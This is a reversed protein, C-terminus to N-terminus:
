HFFVRFLWNAAIGLGTCIYLAQELRRLRQEVDKNKGEQARSFEDRWVELRTLRDQQDLTM